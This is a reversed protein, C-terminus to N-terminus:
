KRLQGFPLLKRAMAAAGKGDGAQLAPLILAADRKM